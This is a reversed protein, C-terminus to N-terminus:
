AEASLKQPPAKQAQIAESRPPFIAEHERGDDTMEIFEGRVSAGDLRVCGAGKQAILRYKAGGFRVIVEAEAWDGLLANLRVRAGRREFGLLELVCVYLWSASGTYWTWGGRGAHAGAYVDASVVYPEVRYADRKEPSDSHNQPLLMELARHARAADGMRILALLLWCAAHTYQGGNERVGEPYSRIYGPDRGNLSFPPTLLRILGNREDALQNWAADMASRCRAGDLGALVAWAQSIGDIRCESGAHSGLPAGDDAYARLYWGGDWASNEVAARLRGALAILEDADGAEPSVAAYEGACVIAFESLWVSEGKGQAGVRNMGDNWDGAGMLLLGHAGSKLSRFARMCHDHLNGICDGPRMECYRDERGEEIPVGELYRIMEGLVGADGTFRVYKAAVYPLFLRDDSIRTRVGTFPEHWWHLVDGEPFQRAAAYLLHARVRGPESPLLALMDQLQDRFGYAGGPQYFGTRARIRSSLTQHLLWVNMMRDVAANPTSVRLAGMRLQWEAAASERVREYNPNESFRRAKERAINENEAWGLAWDARVPADPRMAIPVEIRWGGTRAVPAGIGEPNLIGGRGLFANREGGAQARADACAFYGTGPMSGSAFCAGARTWTRTARADLRDAGMLWDVFGILRARRAIPSRLTAHIRMQADGANVLVAVEGSLQEAEFRYVCEYPSYVCRFAGERGPLLRACARAEEDYLYLMWGWGDYLPDNTFETIRGTRSSGAWLFGGGRETLLAGFSDNALINCWPAPPFANKEIDISYRGDSLFGGAGNEAFRQAAPLRNEGLALPNARSEPTELADLTRLLQMGLEESANWEMAAFRSLAHRLEASTQAGDLLRVGGPVNELAGLHSARIADSIADRVPREYGTEQEAILVLDTKLGLSRYYAHAAIAERVRSLEGRAHVRMLLIAEEGSVGAAWLASRPCSGQAGENKENLRPNVLLAIARDLLRRRRADIGLFAIMARAQMGSLEQARQPASEPYNRELWTEADEAFGLAFHMEAQAGAPLVFEASLVACPNLPSGVTGTLPHLAGSRDVRADLATEAELAGPANAMLLLAPMAEGESRPRRRFQVAWRRPRASEVFMQRFVPHAREDREDDLAVAADCTAHVHAEASGENKIQIRIFLAGDEPSVCVEGACALAGPHASLAASGPLYRKPKLMEERGSEGIRIRLGDPRGPAEPEFRTGLLEGRRYYIAGDASVLASAGAGFLPHLDALRGNEKPIRAEGRRPPEYATQERLLFRKAHAPKPQKEELLLEVARVRPDRRFWEILAGGTLANTLACLAMGQHHAMYSKVLAPRGDAGARVYDASEYYGYIGRWGLANMARLNECVAGPAIPAALMSAYPAVVNETGPMGLALARLGFARYQYNLMADFAAYGSESVGWPRGRQAGQARQAAVAARVTEGLLTNEPARFFIEPMLYEFMTGSWSLCAFRGGVADGARSLKQWHKEPVDARMVAILSLIRSESALLDYHSESARDNQTDVGIRFLGRQADYLANLNMKDALARLRGALEEEVAAACLLLCAILNGSDVSSVYKPSLANLTRVDYWNYIQGNWKEMKELTAATASLRAHMQATDILGLERAAVCSLMYLGINTGSTREAAGVPPDIQVNDPPLYNTEKTVFRDFFAWIERALARMEARDGASPEVPANLRAEELDQIRKPAILFLAGLAITAPLMPAILLGPALLIAAVGCAPRYRNKGGAADASTVWDLLHKKTFAIRWLTRLIADGACAVRMPLIMLEATARTWAERNPHLIAASYACALGLVLMGANGTWIATTLLSVLAPAYLSRILNGLIWMRAIAPLSRGTQPLRKKSFLMPLLQWDGRMWRNERKLLSSLTAPFGDYLPIDSALAAGALAGEIMDHSLIKGEPLAGELASAFARVDYIGKGGFLGMGCVDQFYDSVSAPYADMGGRGAFVRVFRNEEARASLTMEGQVIAYGHRVGGRVDLRNLPHAIAGILRRAAGPLFRTGEDITLVYEFRGRIRDCASGEAGFAEEAGSTNLILANLANLAGRKRDCGMWRADAALYARPRHLYYYKEEGARANMASIRARVANVITEDGPLREEDADAFDGLILYRINASREMCGLAEIQDCVANAREPSSLLAPMTVLTRMTDPVTDLELKLLTRPRIWKPFVRAILANLVYWAIPIGLPLLMWNRAAFAYLAFLAAWGCAFGAASGRGTPDPILRRPQPMGIERALASRGEDDYLWYCVNREREGEARAAAHIAYRAVTIETLRWKRALRAVQERIAARSTPEMHSYVNAPDAELEAEVGSLMRFCAQWDLADILRKMSMLNELQLKAQAGEAHAARVIADFDAGRLARELRMQLRPNENESLMRAAHEFFAESRGALRVRAGGVWREALRKERGIALANEAAIRYARCVCIRAAEPFAWIEAMELAQVDDFSAVALMLAERDIKESGSGIARRAVAQVRTERGCKPLRRVSERRAQQACKAMLIADRALTEVADAEGENAARLRNAEEAIRLLAREESQSLALRGRGGASIEVALARMRRSITGQEERAITHRRGIGGM